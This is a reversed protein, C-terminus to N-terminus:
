TRVKRKEHELVSRGKKLCVGAFNMKALYEHNSNRSNSNLASNCRAILGLSAKNSTCAAHSCRFARFSGWRRFCSESRSHDLGFLTEGASHDYASWGADSLTGQDLLQHGLGVLKLKRTTM